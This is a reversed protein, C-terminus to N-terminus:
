RTHTHTHAHTHTHTHLYINCTFYFCYRDVVLRTKSHVQEVSQLYPELHPVVAEVIPDMLSRPLTLRWQELAELPWHAM